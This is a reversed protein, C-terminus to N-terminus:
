LFIVCKKLYILVGFLKIFYAKLLKKAKLVTLNLFVDTQRRTLKEM